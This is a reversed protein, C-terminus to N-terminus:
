KPGIRWADALGVPRKEFSKVPAFPVTEMASPKLVNGDKKRYSV